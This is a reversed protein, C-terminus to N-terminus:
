AQESQPIQNLTAYEALGADIIARNWALAAQEPTAFTGLHRKKNGVSIRALWRGNHKVVGRYRGPVPKRNHLNQSRTVIRLNDRQNDLGNGNRHDVMMGDPADMIFRHLYVSRTHQGDNVTHIAYVRGRNVPMAHWRYQAVREYDEDSVLAEMGNSLKVTKM